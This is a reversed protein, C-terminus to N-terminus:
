AGRTRPAAQNAHVNPKLVLILFSHFLDDHGHDKDPDRSRRDHGDVVVDLALRIANLM